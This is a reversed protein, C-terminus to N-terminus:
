EQQEKNKNRVLIIIYSNAGSEGQLYICAPTPHPHQPVMERGEERGCDGYVGVVWWTLLHQNGGVPYQPPQEQQEDRADAMQHNIAPETGQM